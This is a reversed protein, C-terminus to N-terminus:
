SEGPPYCATVTDCYGLLSIADASTVEEDNVLGSYILTDNHHCDTELREYLSNM